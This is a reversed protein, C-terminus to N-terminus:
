IKENVSCKKGFVVRVVRGACLLVDGWECMHM